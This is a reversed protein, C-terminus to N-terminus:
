RSWGVSWTLRTGSGVGHPGVSEVHGSGICGQDLRSVGRAGIGRSEAM